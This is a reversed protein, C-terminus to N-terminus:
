EAGDDEPEFADIVSLVHDNNQQFVKDRNSFAWKLAKNTLFDAEKKTLELTVMENQWKEFLDNRDKQAQAWEIDTQKASRVVGEEFDVEGLKAPNARRLKRRLRAARATLAPTTTYATQQLIGEIQYAGGRTVTYPTAPVAKAAAEETSM